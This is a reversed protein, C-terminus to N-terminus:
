TPYIMCAGSILAEMLSIRGKISLSSGELIRSQKSAIECFRIEIVLSDAQIVLSDAQDPIDTIPFKLFLWEFFEIFRGCSGESSSGWKSVCLLSLSVGFRIKQREFQHFLISFKISM